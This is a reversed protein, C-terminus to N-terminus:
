KERLREPGGALNPAMVRGREWKSYVAVEGVVRGGGKADQSTGMLSSEHFPLKSKTKHDPILM